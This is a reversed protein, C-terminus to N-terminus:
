GTISSIPWRRLTSRRTCIERDAFYRLMSSGEAKYWARLSSYTSIRGTIKGHAAIERKVLGVAVLSSAESRSTATLIQAANAGYLGTWQGNSTDKQLNQAQAPASWFLTLM